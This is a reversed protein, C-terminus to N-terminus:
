SGSRGQESAFEVRERATAALRGGEETLAEDASIRGENSTLLM